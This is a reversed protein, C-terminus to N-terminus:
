HRFLVGIYYEHETRYNKASVDLGHLRSLNFIPIRCSGTTFSYRRRLNNCSSMCPKNEPASRLADRSQGEQTTDRHVSRGGCDSTNGRSRHSRMSDDVDDCHGAEDHKDNADCSHSHSRSSVRLLDDSDDSSGFLEHRLDPDLSGCPKAATTEASAAKRSPKASSKSDIEGDM